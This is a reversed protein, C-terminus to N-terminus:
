IHKWAIHNVINQVHSRTIGFLNSLNKISEGNEAKKRILIVQEKTLKANHHKEGSHASGKHRGKNVMDIANDKLTGIFLHEPNVCGPTDCHHCVLLGEPIPGKYMEYSFRHAKYVKGNFMFHGYNNPNNRWLWCKDPEQSPIYRYFADQITSSKVNHGAKFRAPEGKRYGFSANTRNAIWTKQNCGCQCMGYPFQLGHRYVWSAYVQHTDLPINSHPM